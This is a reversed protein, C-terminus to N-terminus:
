PIQCQKKIWFVNMQYRFIKDLYFMLNSSLYIYCYENYCATTHNYNPHSRRLNCTHNVILVTPCENSNIKLSSFRPIHNSFTSHFLFWWSFLTWLDISLWQIQTSCIRLYNNWITFLPILHTSLDSISKDIFKELNDREIEWVFQKICFTIICSTKLWAADQYTKLFSCINKFLSLSKLSYLSFSFQIVTIARSQDTGLTM